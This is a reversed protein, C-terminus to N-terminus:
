APGSAPLVGSDCGLDLVTKDVLDPLARRMLQWNGSGIEVSGIEGVGYGKGYYIPAYSHNEELALQDVKTFLAETTPLDTALLLDSSRVTEETFGPVVRMKEALFALPGDERLTLLEVDHGFRRLVSAYELLAMMGGTHKPRDILVTIRLPASPARDSPVDAHTM